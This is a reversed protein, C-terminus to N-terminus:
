KGCPSSNCKQLVLGDQQVLAWLSMAFVEFIASAPDLPDVKACAVTAGPQSGSLMADVIARIIEWVNERKVSSKSLRCRHFEVALRRNGLVSGNVFTHRHITIHTSEDVGWSNTEVCLYMSGCRPNCCICPLTTAVPDEYVDQTDLKRKQPVSTKDVDRPTEEHLVDGDFMRMRGDFIDSQTDQEEDPPSPEYDNPLDLLEGNMDVLNVQPNSHNRVPRMASSVMVNLEGESLACDYAEKPM